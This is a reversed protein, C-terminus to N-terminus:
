LVYTSRNKDTLKRYIIQNEGGEECMFYKCELPWQM